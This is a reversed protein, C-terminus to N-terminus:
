KCAAPVTINLISAGQKLLGCFVGDGVKWVGNQLVSTGSQGSAVSTGAATLDYKVVAQTASTLSVSDVKSSVGAALPSSEFAQIASAFAQGNQLLTVRESNPTSSSFFKVWNAKIATIAAASGSAASGTASSSATPPVAPASQASARISSPAVDSASSGPVSASSAGSSCAPVAAALVLGFGLATLPRARRAPHDSRMTVGEKAATTFCSAPSRYSLSEKGIM